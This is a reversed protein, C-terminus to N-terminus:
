SNLADIPPSSTSLVCGLVMMTYLELLLSGPFMTCVVSYSMQCLFYDLRLGRRSTSSSRWCRNDVIAYRYDVHRGVQALLTAPLDAFHCVHRSGTQQSALWLAQGPQCLRKGLLLVAARAARVAMAGANSQRTCTPSAIIWDTAANSIPNNAKVLMCLASVLSHM